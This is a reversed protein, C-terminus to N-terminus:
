SDTVFVIRAVDDGGCCPCYASGDWDPPTTRITFECECNACEFDADM